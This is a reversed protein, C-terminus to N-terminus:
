DNDMIYCYWLKEFTKGFFLARESDLTALRSPVDSYDIWRYYNSDVFGEGVKQTTNFYPYYKTITVKKNGNIAKACVKLMEFANTDPTGQYFKKDKPDDGTVKCCKQFTNLNRYSEEKQKARDEALKIKADIKDLESQLKTKQKKLEETKM